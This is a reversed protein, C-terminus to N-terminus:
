SRIAHVPRKFLPSFNYLGELVMRMVKVTSELSEVEHRLEKLRADQDDPFHRGDANDTALIWHKM